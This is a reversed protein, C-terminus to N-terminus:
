QVHIYVTQWATKEDNKLSKNQLLQFLLASLVLSLYLAVVVALAHIIEDFSSHLALVVDHCSPHPALM